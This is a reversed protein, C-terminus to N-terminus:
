TSLSTKAAPVGLAMRRWRRSAALPETDDLFMFHGGQRLSKIGQLGESSRSRDIRLPLKRRQRSSHSGNSAKEIREDVSYSQCAGLIAPHVDGVGLAQLSQIVLVRLQLLQDCVLGDTGDTKDARMARARKVFTKVYCPSIM